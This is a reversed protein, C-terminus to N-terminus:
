FMRILEFALVAGVLAILVIFQWTEMAKLKGLQKAIERKVVTRRDHDTLPEFISEMTDPLTQLKIETLIRNEPTTEALVNAKIENQTRIQCAKVKGDIVILLKFRKKSRGRVDKITFVGKNNFQSIQEGKLYVKDERITAKYLEADQSHYIHLVPILPTKPM